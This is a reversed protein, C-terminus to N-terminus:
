SDATQLRVNLPWVWLMKIYVFWKFFLLIDVSSTSLHMIVTDRNKNTPALNNNQKGRHVFESRQNWSRVLKTLWYYLVTSIAHYRLITPMLLRPLQWNTPPFFSANPISVNDLMLLTLMQHSTNAVIALMQYCTNAVIALMKYSTNAVIALM